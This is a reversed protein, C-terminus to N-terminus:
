WCYYDKFFGSLIQDVIINLTEFHENGGEEMEGVSILQM